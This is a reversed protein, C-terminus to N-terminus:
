VNTYSLFQNNQLFNFNMFFLKLFIMNLNKKMNLLIEIEFLTVLKQRVSVNAM